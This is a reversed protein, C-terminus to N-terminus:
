ESAIGESLPLSYAWDIIEYEPESEVRRILFAVTLKNNGQRFYFEDDPVQEYSVEIDCFCHVDVREHEKLPKEFRENRHKDDRM